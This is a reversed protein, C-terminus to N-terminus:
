TNGGADVLDAEFLGNPPNKGDGYPEVNWDPEIQRPLPTRSLKFSDGLQLTIDATYAARKEAEVENSGSSEDKTLRRILRRPIM